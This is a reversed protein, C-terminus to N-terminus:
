PRHSLYASIKELCEDVTWADSKVVLEPDVPREYPDDVGTLGM